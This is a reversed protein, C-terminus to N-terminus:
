KLISGKDLLLDWIQFSPLIEDRVSDWLTSVDAVGTVLSKLMFLSADPVTACDDAALV